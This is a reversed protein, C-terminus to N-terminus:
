HGPKLLGLSSGSRQLARCSRWCSSRPWRGTRTRTARALLGAVASGIVLVVILLILEYQSFPLLVIPMEDHPTEAAWLEPRPLRMGTILWPLLGLVGAAMGALASVGLHLPRLTPEEQPQEATNRTGIESTMTDGSEM